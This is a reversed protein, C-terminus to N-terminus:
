GQASHILFDEDVGRHSQRQRVGAPGISTLHARFQVLYQEPATTGRRSRYQEGPHAPRHEVM